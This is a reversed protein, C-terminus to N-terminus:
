IKVAKAKIYKESENITDDDDEHPWYYWQQNVNLLINKVKPYDAENYWWEYWSVIVLLNEDFEKLKEILEKVIMFLLTLFELPFRDSSDRSKRSEIYIQM